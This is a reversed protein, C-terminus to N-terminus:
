GDAFMSESFLHYLKIWHELAPDPYAPDACTKSGRPDPDTIIKKSGSGEM